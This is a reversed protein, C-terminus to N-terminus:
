AGLARDRAITAQVGDVVAASFGARELAVLGAVTTGGPSSVADILDAPTRGRGADGADAAEAQVTLASGLVAQTVIQVAQAKPIGAAVGGRALAEIFQFVFAPSSGALATFASFDKEALVVTRGVTSMLARATELDAAGATAGAALATMSQGVAAAMNPMARVVRAGPPLMQALRETSLGAAISLVLPRRAALADALSELVEPVVHPKVALVVVDSAAVLDAPAPVHRAGTAAALRSASDHASTLLVDTTPTGAAITGRVIAEAMNGAGIFGYVTM